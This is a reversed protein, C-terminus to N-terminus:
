QPVLTMLGRYKIRLLLMTGRYLLYSCLINLDTSYSDVCNVVVRACNGAPATRIKSM